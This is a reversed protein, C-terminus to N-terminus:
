LGFECIMQDKLTGEELELQVQAIIQGSCFEGYKKLSIYGYSKVPTFNYLGGNQYLEEGCRTNLSSTTLKTLFSLKKGDMTNITVEDGTHGYHIEMQAGNGMCKLQLGQAGSALLSSTMLISIMKKMLSKM